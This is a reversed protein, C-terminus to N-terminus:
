GKPGAILGELDEVVSLLIERADPLMTAEAVKRMQETYAKIRGVAAEPTHEMLPNM